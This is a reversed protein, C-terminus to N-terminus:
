VYTLMLYTVLGFAFMLIFFFKEITTFSKESM